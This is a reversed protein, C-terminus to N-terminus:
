EMLHHKRLVRQVTEISIAEAVNGLRGKITTARFLSNYIAEETAEICALFLPGLHHDSMIKAERRVNQEPIRLDKATSFAIFYDGSRPGAVSGTRALGFMARTALRRLQRADAPADTAIVMVVSGDDRKISTPSAEARLKIQERLYNRGLEKWVPAGLITLMGDFNTQVLVGVTHGGLEAPLRRSSTGIGGKLGFAITGTGAGVSGEKIPGGVASQLAAFVETRGVHRGCIDNLLGDNTEAVLPNISRVEGTGPFSLVYEILADAARPVSLTNTLVIPTEIEGIENVQSIGTMKGFANGAFVAAPVKERFLNGEHPLIATVGTRVDDGRILTGHGVRVGAVDTIANLPAPAIVGPAVGIDRARPREDM